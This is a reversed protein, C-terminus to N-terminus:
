EVGCYDFKKLDIKINDKRTLRPIELLEKGKLEEKKKQNIHKNM